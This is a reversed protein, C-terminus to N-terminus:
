CPRDGLRAARRRDLRGVAARGGRRDGVRGAVIAHAAFGLAVTGALVAALRRWPRLKVLLTLLILGYFLYGAEAPSRLM